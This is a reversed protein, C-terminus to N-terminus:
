LAAGGRGMGCAWEWEWERDTGWEARLVVEEAAAAAAGGGGGGGGGCRWELGHASKMGSGGVLECGVLAWDGGGGAGGRGGREAEAGAGAGESEAGEAGGAEADLAAPAFSLAEGSLAKM